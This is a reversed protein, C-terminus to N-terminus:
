FTLIHVVDYLGNSTSPQSRSISSDEGHSTSAGGRMLEPHGIPWDYVVKGDYAIMDFPAKAFSVFEHVFHSTREGLFDRLHSAFEEGELDM